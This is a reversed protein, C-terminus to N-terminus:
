IRAMHSWTQCMVVTGRGTYSPGMSRLIEIVCERTKM